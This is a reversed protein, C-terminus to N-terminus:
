VVLYTPSIHFLIERKIPEGKKVAIICTFEQGNLMGILGYKQRIAELNHSKITLYWAKSIGDLFSTKCCKIGSIAFYVNEGIESFNKKGCLTENPLIVPVYVEESNILHFSSSNFECDLTKFLQSMSNIIKNPIKLFVFGNYDTMLSGKMCHILNIKSMLLDENKVKEDKEVIHMSIFEKNKEFFSNQKLLPLNYSLESSKDDKFLEYCDDFSPIQSESDIDIDFKKKLRKLFTNKVSKHKRMPNLDFADSSKIGLQYSSRKHWDASKQTPSFIFTNVNIRINM